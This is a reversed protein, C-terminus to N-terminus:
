HVWISLCVSLIDKRRRKSRTGKSRCPFFRVTFFKDQINELSIVRTCASVRLFTIFVSNGPWHFFPFFNDFQDRVLIPQSASLCLGISLVPFPYHAPSRTYLQWQSPTCCTLTYLTTRTHTRSLFLDDGVHCFDLFHNRLHLALCLVIKSNHTHHLVSLGFQVVCGSRSACSRPFLCDYDVIAAWSSLGTQGREHKPQKGWIACVCEPSLRFCNCDVTGTDLIPELAWCDFELPLLPLHLFVIVPILDILSSSPCVLLLLHRLIEDLM